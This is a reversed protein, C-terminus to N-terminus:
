INEKRYENPTMGVIKKFVKRFYKDDQYGIKGAIEYIKLNPFKLLEKAKNIRISVIYESLNVGYIQKFKRSIYERSLYFKESFEQLSIEEAYNQKIYNAIAEISNLEKNTENMENLIAQVRNRLTEIYLNLEFHGKANWFVEINIDEINQLSLKNIWHNLFLSFEQHLSILQSFPLYNQQLIRDKILEIVDDFIYIDQKEMMQDFLKITDLFNFPTVEKIDQIWYVNTDRKDLLNSQLLINTTEEYGTKISEITNVKSSTAIHFPFPVIESLINSVHIIFDRIHDGWYVICIERTGKLNRFAIGKNQKQLIENVVNLTAFYCLDESWIGRCTELNRLKILSIQSQYGNTYGLQNLIKHDFDNGFIANTLQQDRYVPLIEQLLRFDKLSDIREKEEENWDSVVKTLTENLVDPDIPKLLYDSAGYKIAERMYHYDDYGTVVIVKCNINESHLWKLLGIGDLEPMMLDTFIINPRENQIIKQALAGNEAELIKADGIIDWNALLKIGERVHKEDDILLVKM